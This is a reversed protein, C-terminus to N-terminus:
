RILSLLYQPMQNTIGLSSSLMQQKGQLLSLQSSLAAIDADEIKSISSELSTSMTKANDEIGKIGTMMTGITSQNTGVTSSATEIATMATAAGAATSLNITGTDVGLTVSDSKAAKLTYKDGSNVGSQISVDAASSNLLNKGFLKANNVTSDLQGQLEAFSSQLASRQDASLLDSSAQTALDKMQTLISQQTQLARDSVELLSSGANLNKKVAGLSSQQIKLSSLIGTGAPDDAATIIRKGTSIQNAVKQLSAANDNLNRAIATSLSNSNISLM